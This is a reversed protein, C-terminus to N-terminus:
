SVIKDVFDCLEQDNPLDEKTAQLTEAGHTPMCDVSWRSNSVQQGCGAVAESYHQQRAEPTGHMSVAVSRYESRQHTPAYERPHGAVTAEPQPWQQGVQVVQLRRLLLQCYKWQDRLRKNFQIQQQLCHQQLQRIHEAAQRAIRRCHLRSQPLPLSQHSRLSSEPNRLLYEQQVSSFYQQHEWYSQGDYDKVYQSCEGNEGPPPYHFFDPIAESQQVQPAAPSLTSSQAQFPTPISTETEELAEFGTHMSSSYCLKTM